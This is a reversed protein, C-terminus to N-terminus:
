LIDALNYNVIDYRRVVGINTDFFTSSPYLKSLTNNPIFIGNAVINVGADIRFVNAKDLLVNKVSTKNILTRHFMSESLDSGALNCSKFHTCWLNSNSFNVNNLITKEFKANALNTYSMNAHSLDYNYFNFEFLDAFQLDVFKLDVNEHFALVLGEKIQESYSNVRKSTYEFITENTKWNKLRCKVNTQPSHAM